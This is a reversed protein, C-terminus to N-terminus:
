KEKMPRITMLIPTGSLPLNKENAVFTTDDGGEVLPTDLIAEPDHLTVILNKRYKAVLFLEKTDPHQVTISGTFVWGVRPMSEGTYVNYVLDEARRKVHKTEGQRTQDWEVSIVVRDGGTIATSEEFTTIAPTPKLGILMLALMLEEPDINLVCVTEHEKGGPACAFLEILGHAIAIRGTLEIRKESFFVCMNNFTRVKEGKERATGVHQLMLENMPNKPEKEAETGAPPQGQNLKGSDKGIDGKLAVNIGETSEEADEAIHTHPPDSQAGSPKEITEKGPATGIDGSKVSDQM